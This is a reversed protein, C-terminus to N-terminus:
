RERHQFSFWFIHEYFVLHWCIAWMKHQTHTHVTCWTCKNERCSHVYINYWESKEIRVFVICAMTWRMKILFYQGKNGFWVFFFLAPHACVSIENWLKYSAWFFAMIAVFFEFNCIYEVKVYKIFSKLNWTIKNVKQKSDAMKTCIKWKSIGVEISYFKCM